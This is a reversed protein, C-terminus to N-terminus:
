DRPLLNFQRVVNDIHTYWGSIMEPIVAEVKDSKFSRNRGRALAQRDKLFNYIWNKHLARELSKKVRLFKRWWAWNLRISLRM